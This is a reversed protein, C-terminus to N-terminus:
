RRVSVAISLTTATLEGSSRAQNPLHGGLLGSHEQHMYKEARMGVRILLSSTQVTTRLAALAPTFSAAYDREGTAFSSEARKLSPLLPPQLPSTEAGRMKEAEGPAGSVQQVLQHGGGLAVRVDLDRVASRHARAM